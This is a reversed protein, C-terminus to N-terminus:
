RWRAPSVWSCAASRRPTERRLIAPQSVPSRAMGRGSHVRNRISVVSLPHGSHAYSKFGYGDVNHVFGAGHSAPVKVGNPPM